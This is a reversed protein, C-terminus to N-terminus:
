RTFIECRVFGDGSLPLRLCNGIGLQLCYFSPLSTVSVIMGCVLREVGGLRNNCSQMANTEPLGRGSVCNVGRRSRRVRTCTVCIFRM